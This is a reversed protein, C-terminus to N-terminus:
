SAEDNAPFRYVEEADFIRVSRSAQADAVGDAYGQDYGRAFANDRQVM